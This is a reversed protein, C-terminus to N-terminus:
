SPEGSTSSHSDNEFVYTGLGIEVVADTPSEGEPAQTYLYQDIENLYEITRRKLEARVEDAISTPINRNYAQLQLWTDQVDDRINHDITSILGNAAHALMDFEAQKQARGGSVYRPRELVIDGDATRSVAEISILEDLMARATTGGSFDDVLETFSPQGQDFKLAAPQGNADRYREDRSWGSLVRTARQYKELEKLETPSDIALQRAVEVRTIGTIIAVRSKSQKRGELAFEENAVHVYAWRLWDACSQYSIGHRLLIRVVPKFLRIM